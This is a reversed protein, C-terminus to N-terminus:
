FTGPVDVDKQLELWVSYYGKNDGYGSTSHPSRGGDHPKAWVIVNQTFKVGGVKNYCNAWYYYLNIPLVENGAVDTIKIWVGGQDFNVAGQSTLLRKVQDPFSQPNTIIQEISVGQIARWVANGNVGATPGDICGDFMCGFNVTGEAYIQFTYGAQVGAVRTWGSNNGFVVAKSSPWAYATSLFVMLIAVFMLMKSTPKM